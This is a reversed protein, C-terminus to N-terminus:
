DRGTSPDQAREDTSAGEGEQGAELDAAAEQVTDSARTSLLLYAVGTATAHTIRRALWRRARFRSCLGVANRWASSRCEDITFIALREDVRGMSEDVRELGPAYAETLLDQIDDVISRLVETVARHDALKVSRDTEIGVDALAFALDYNIHANVGLLADQTALSDPARGSDFALQWPDAVAALEGREYDHVAERYRNAFAVLYHAVWDPDEFEGREIRAAVAETTHAYVTLFVARDDERAAFARQLETLRGRSETVTDYPEAVLSVIEPDGASGGSTGPRGERIRKGVATAQKRWARPPRTDMGM